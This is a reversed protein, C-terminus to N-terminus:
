QLLDFADWVADDTALSLVHVSCTRTNWDTEEQTIHGPFMYTHQVSDTDFFFFSSFFVHSLSLCDITNYTKGQTLIFSKSSCPEKNFKRNTINHLHKHRHTRAINTHTYTQVGDRYVGEGDGASIWLASDWHVCSKGQSEDWQRCPSLAQQVDKVLRIAGCHASLMPSVLHTHSLTNIVPPTFTHILVTPGYLLIPLRPSPLTGSGSWVLM